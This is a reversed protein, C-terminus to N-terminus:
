PETTPPPNAAPEASPRTEVAEARRREAAAVLQSVNRWRWLPLSQLSASQKRTLLEPPLERRLRRARRVALKADRLREKRVLLLALGERPEPYEADLQVALAFAVEALTQQRRLTYIVALNNHVMALDPDQDLALKFETLAQDLSDHAALMLGLLNHAAASESSGDPIQRLLQRARAHDAEAFAAEAQALFQDPSPLEPQRRPFPRPDREACGVILIALLCACLPLPAATRSRWM